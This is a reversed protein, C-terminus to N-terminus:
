LTSDEDKDFIVSQLFSVNLYTDAAGLESWEVCIWPAKGTPTAAPQMAVTLARVRSVQSGAEIRLVAGNSLVVGQISMGEKFARM